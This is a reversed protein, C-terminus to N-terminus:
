IQYILLKIMRLIYTGTERKLNMVINSTPIGPLIHLKIRKFKTRLEANLSGGSASYRCVQKTEVYGVVWIVNM